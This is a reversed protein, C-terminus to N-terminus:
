PSRSDFHAMQFGSLFYGTSFYVSSLLPILKTKNKLQSLKACNFFSTKNFSSVTYGKEQGLVSVIRWVETTNSKLIIQEYFLMDM